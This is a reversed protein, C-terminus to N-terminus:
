PTKRENFLFMRLEAVITIVREALDKVDTSKAELKKRLDLNEEVLREIIKQRDAVLWILAGLELVACYQGGEKVLALWWELNM